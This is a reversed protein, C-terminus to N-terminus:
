DEKDFLNIEIKAALAGIILVVSPDTICFMEMTTDEQLLRLILDTIDGRKLTITETAEVQPEAKTEQKLREAFNM